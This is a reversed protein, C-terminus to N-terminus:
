RSDGLPQPQPKGSQTKSARKINEAALLAVQMAISSSAHSNRQWAELAAVRQELEALRTAITTDMCRDYEGHQGIDLRRQTDQAATDDSGWALFILM